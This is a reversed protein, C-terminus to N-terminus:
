LKFGGKRPKALPEGSYWWEILAEPSEWHEVVQQSSCAKREWWRTAAWEFAKYMKPWRARHLALKAQPGCIFPCVVCGLRDFGEDYLECYPLQQKEIYERVAWEPWHFIPKYVTYKRDPFPDIRPLSARANSEEARLGMIRHRLPINKAPDKKLVDCCWRTKRTPLAKSQIFKLFSKKPYLFQVDPHMKRIFRVLEPPDVTTNSYYAKFLVGSRKVLDLVVSSDKGGSFGVFWVEDKPTNERIFRLAEETLQEVTTPFFGGKRNDLKM